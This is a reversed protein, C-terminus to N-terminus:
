FEFVVKAVFRTEEQDSSFDDINSWRYLREIDLALKLNEIPLAYYCSVQMWLRQDKLEIDDPGRQQLPNRGEISDFYHYRIRGEIGYPGYDMELKGAATMGFAYYYREAQFVSGTRQIIHDQEYAEVAAPKVMSFAPYADVGARMHFGRYFYDVVLSPGILDCIVQKDAEGIGAFEHAYYEFASSAGIFLSYGGLTQSDEDKVIQQQYYGLFATKSFFQLDVMETDALAVKFALENFVGDTYFISAEGPKRYKEATVVEFDFGMASETRQKDTDHVQSVGGGAFLRFRHWPDTTLGFRDVNAPPKPRTNDLWRHIATSPGFLFGLTQNPITDSSHQFFEGLQYMTEGIAFGGLPTMIADNISVEDRLEVFFEWATSAVGAYLFSEPLSLDNSRALLYYGAGAAIHGVNTDWPNNDFRIADGTIFRDKLNDLDVKYEYWKREGLTGWYYGTSIGLFGLIELSARLHNKHQPNENSYISYAQSATIKEGGDKKQFEGESTLTGAESTGIGRRLADLKIQDQDRLYALSNPLLTQLVLSQHPDLDRPADGRGSRQRAKSSARPAADIDWRFDTFETDDQRSWNTLTLQVTGDSRKKLHYHYAFQEERAKALEDALTEMSCGTARKVLPPAKAIDDAGPQIAGDGALANEMLAAANRNWAENCPDSIVSVLVRDPDAAALGANLLGLGSGLVMSALGLFVVGGRVIVSRFRSLDM